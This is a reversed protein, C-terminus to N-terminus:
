KKISNLYKQIRDNMRKVLDKTHKEYAPFLFPHPASGDRLLVAIVAGHAEEPIGVRGAWATVAKLFEAFGKHDTRNKFQLAQHRFEEPVEVKSKTGFEVFVAYDAAVYVKFGVRGDEDVPAIDASARLFGMDVPMLEKAENLIDQAAVNLEAKAAETIGKKLEKESLKKTLETLGKVDLKIM